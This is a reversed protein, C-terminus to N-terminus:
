RKDESTKVIELVRVQNSMSWTTRINSSLESSPTRTEEAPADHLNGFGSGDARQRRVRLAVKKKTKPLQRRGGRARSNKSGSHVLQQSSAKRSM